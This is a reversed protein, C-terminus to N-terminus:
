RQDCLTRNIQCTAAWAQKAANVRQKESEEYAAQFIKTQVQQEKIQDRTFFYGAVAGTVAAMAAWLQVVGGVTRYKLVALGTVVILVVCWRVRM